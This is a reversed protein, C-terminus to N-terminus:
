RISGDNRMLYENAHLAEQILSSKHGNEPHSTAIQVDGNDVVDGDTQGQISQEQEVM